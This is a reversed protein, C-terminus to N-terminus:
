SNAKPPSAPETEFDGEAAMDVATAATRFHLKAFEGLREEGLRQIVNAATALVQKSAGRPLTCGAVDGLEAMQDIFGKRALISAAAVAIDSEAKPRQDLQIRQGREKLANLVESKRAFQDSLARPCEPVKELLNELARAHGWALLRNVNRMNQYMRNYSGPGIRVLSYRGRVIKRIEQALMTIRKDSKIAKSDQVGAEVLKLGSEQDVYVCAIVMPGFFDGKGSEDIGAHPEFMDPHEVQAMEAEYGFRAEKLIEPEIYFQVLEATERGQVTVKGSEYATVTTKNKRARYRAYPITDLEWNQQELIHRLQEAQQADMTCVHSTKSM